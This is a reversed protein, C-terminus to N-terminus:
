INTLAWSYSFMKPTTVAAKALDLQKESPLQVGKVYNHIMICVTIHYKHISSYSIEKGNWYTISMLLLNQKGGKSAMSECEEKMLFHLKIVPIKFHHVFIKKLFVLKQKALWDVQTSHSCPQSHDISHYYVCMNSVQYRSSHISLTWYSVM